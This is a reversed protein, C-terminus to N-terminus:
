KWMSDNLKYIWRQYSVNFVYFSTSLTSLGLGWLITRPFDTESTVYFCPVYFSLLCIRKIDSYQSILFRIFSNM